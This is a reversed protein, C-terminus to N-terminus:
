SGVAAIEHAALRRVVACGVPLADRRADADTRSDYSSDYREGTRTNADDTRIVCWRRAGHLGCLPVIEGAITGTTVAVGECLTDDDPEACCVRRADRRENTRFNDASVRADKNARM